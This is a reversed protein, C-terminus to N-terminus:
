VGSTNLLSAQWHIDNQTGFGVRSSFFRATLGSWLKGRRKIESREGPAVGNAGKYISAYAGGVLAGDLLERPVGMVASVNV